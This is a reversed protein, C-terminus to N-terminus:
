GRVKSVHAPGVENSAGLLGLEKARSEYKIGMNNLSDADSQNIVGSSVLSNLLNTHYSDSPDYSVDEREILRMAVECINQISNSVGSDVRAEDIKKLRSNDGAWILLKRSSVLVNLERYETNLDDAIQQNTMTSYGRNLPDNKIEDSLKKLNM